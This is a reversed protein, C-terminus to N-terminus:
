KGRFEKKTKRNQTTMRDTGNFQMENSEAGRLMLIVIGDMM